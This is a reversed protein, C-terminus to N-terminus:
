DPGRIPRLVGKLPARLPRRNRPLVGVRHHDLARDGRRLGLVLLSALLEEPLREDVRRHAEDGVRDARHQGEHEGALQEAVRGSSQTEPATKMVSIVMGTVPKM